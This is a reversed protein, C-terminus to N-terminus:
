NQFVYCYASQYSLINQPIRQQKVDCHHCAVVIGRFGFTFIAHNSGKSTYGNLKIGFSMVIHLSTLFHTRHSEQNSSMVIIELLLLEVFGLFSYPM